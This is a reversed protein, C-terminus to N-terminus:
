QCSSCKGEVANIENFVYLFPTNAYEQTTFTLGPVAHLNIQHMRVIKGNVATECPDATTPYAGIPLTRFGEPYDTANLNTSPSSFKISADEFNTMENVNYAEFRGAFDGTRGKAPILINFFPHNGTNLADGTDLEFDLTSGPSGNLHTPVIQVEKWAYKFAKAKTYNGTTIEQYGTILAWFSDSGDNLCCVVYKFINWKEKLRILNLYTEKKTRLSKKLDIYIKAVNKQGSVNVIPDFPDLDFMTQWMLQSNRDGSLESATIGYETHFGYSHEHLFSNNYASDFYGYKGEDFVRKTYTTLTIGKSEEFFEVLSDDKKIIDAPNNFDTKASAKEYFKYNTEPFHENIRYVVNTKKIAIGNDTHDFYPNTFDPELREYFSCLAGTNELEMLSLIPYVQISDIKEKRMAPDDSDYSDRAMVMYTTRPLSQIMNNLSKFNTSSLDKWFFFDARPKGSSAKSNSFEALYNLLPLAKSHDVKRGSPFMIPKNKLWAYNETDDLNYVEGPFYQLFIDKVWSDAQPTVTSAWVDDTGLGPREGGFPTLPGVDTNLGGLGGGGGSGSGEEITASIKKISEDFEFPKRENLFYAEHIFKLIAMRPQTRDAYDTLRSVQYIYYNNLDIPNGLRDTIKIEIKDKGTFNFDALMDGPDRLILKGSPITGFISEDFAIQELFGNSQQNEVVVWETLNIAHVIKITEINVLDAVAM